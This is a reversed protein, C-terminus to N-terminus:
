APPRAFGQALIAIALWVLGVVFWATAWMVRRAKWDIAVRIREATLHLAAAILISAEGPKLPLPIGDSDGRAYDYSILERAAPHSAVPVPARAWFALIVAVIFSVAALAPLFYITIAQASVAAALLTSTIGSATLIERAKADMADFDAHFHDYQREAFHLYLSAAPLDRIELADYWAQHPQVETAHSADPPRFLM